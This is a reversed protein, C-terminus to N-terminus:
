LLRVLDCKLSSGMTNSNMQPMLYEFNRERYDILPLFVREGLLVSAEKMFCIILKRGIISNKVLNIIIAIFLKLLTHFVLIDILEILSFSGDSPAPARGPSLERDLNGALAM